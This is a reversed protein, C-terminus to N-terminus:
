PDARREKHSFSVGGKSVRRYLLDYTLTIGVRTPGLWNWRYQRKKFLEPKDTWKYYYLDDHYAANVPNEYQYPDYKCRFFGAQLQFELRWHGRRSLPVVYGVGVGGGAGEGVWGREADFCIGFVGVHAYGQLYLGRFAAGQGPPNSAIDGSRLYYRGEIQYNRVQFYKHAQYDQWWPMDFSAGFTLHGHMPYYEIAINPMPCWRNYGPVYAGYMLLNTKVSLWERREQWEERQEVVEQVPAVVTDTDAVLVPEQDEIIVPPPPAPLERVFLVLRAARLQPFYRKLIRRWLRGGQATRLRQKLNGYQHRRLHDDCLAKVLPYDPDNARKMMVCLLPYDETEVLTVASSDMSMNSLQSKVYEYLAQARHEGLFKNWRYPGEPSAAGRFLIRLLQVSDRDLQPLVKDRLEALIADQKPLDYKNVPFIVKAAIDLFEEDSLSDTELSDVVFRVYRYNRYFASDPALSSVRETEAFPLSAATLPLPMAIAATVMFLAWWFLARKITTRAQM